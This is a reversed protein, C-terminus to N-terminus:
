HLFIRILFRTKRIGTEAGLSIMCPSHDSSGSADFYANSNPYKELWAENILERDLKIAKPNTPSKNTWTFYCGRFTLDFVGSEALCDSLDAMGQVCFIPQSLSYVESVSLVQNFYGLIIWPSQSLRSSNALEKIKAWLPVRQEYRNRAYVFAVSFEQGSVTNFIGCLVMQSSKYYVIVSISPDWVVVIRGNEAEESYNAEYRWGLTITSLIGSLNEEQVHTELLAGVLPRNLRIWDSVSSKQTEGNLGRINWFFSKMLSPVFLNTSPM